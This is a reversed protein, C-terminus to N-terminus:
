SCDYELARKNEEADEIGLEGWDGQHHRELLPTPSIGADEHTALAGPTAVTRGLSFLEKCVTAGEKTQWASHSVSRFPAPLEANVLDITEDRTPGKARSESRNTM